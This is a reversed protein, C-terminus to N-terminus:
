RIPLREKLSAIENNRQQLKKELQDIKYVLELNSPRVGKESLLVQEEAIFRKLREDNLGQILEVIKASKKRLEVEFDQLSLYRSDDNKHQLLLQQELRTERAVSEVLEQSVIHLENMLNKNANLIALQETSVMVTKFIKKGTVAEVMVAPELEDLGSSFLPVYPATLKGNTNPVVIEESIVSKRNNPVSGRRPPVRQSPSSITSSGNGMMYETRDIFHSNARNRNGQSQSFGINNEKVQPLHALSSSAFISHYSKQKNIPSAGHSDLTTSTDACNRGAPEKASTTTADPDTSQLSRVSNSISQRRSLKPSSVATDVRNSLPSGPRSTISNKRSSIKRLLSKAKAFGGKKEKHSDNSSGGQSSATASRPSHLCPDTSPTDPRASESLAQLPHSESVLHPQPQSYVERRCAGIDSESPPDQSQSRLTERTPSLEQLQRQSTVRAPTLEPSQPQSTQQTSPPEQQGAQWENKHLRASQAPSAEQAPTQSNPIPPSGRSSDEYGSVDETRYTDDRAVACFLSNKDKLNSESSDSEGKQNPSSAVNGSGETSELTDSGIDELEDASPVDRMWPFASSFDDDTDLTRLSDILLSSPKLDIVSDDASSSPLPSASLDRKEEPEITPHGHDEAKQQERKEALDLELKKLEEEKEKLSQEKEVLLAQERELYTQLDQKKPDSVKLVNMKGVSPDPEAAFAGEPVETEYLTEHESIFSVDPTTNFRGTAENPYQPANYAHEMPMGGAPTQRPHRLADLNSYAQRSHSQLSMSRPGGLPPQHVPAYMPGIMRPQMARQPPGHYGGSVVPQTVPPGVKPPGGRGGLSMTRPGVPGSMAMPGGRFRNVAAPPATMPSGWGNGPLVGPGQPQMPGQPPVPSQPVGAGQPLKGYPAPGFQPRRNYSQLSMARGAVAPPGYGQMPPQRNQRAMTNFAMKKQATLRKRYDTNNMQGAGGKAETPMLTPIVTMDDVGGGYGYKHGGNNRLSSLDNMSLNGMDHDGLFVDEDDDDEKGAGRRRGKFFTTVSSTLSAARSAGRGGYGADAGHAVAAEADGVQGSLLQNRLQAQASGTAGGRKGNMTALGAEM